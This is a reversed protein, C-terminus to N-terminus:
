SQLAWREAWSEPFDHGLAYVYRIFQGQHQAEHELLTALLDDREPTWEIGDVVRDFSEASADLAELLREPSQVDDATLSCGFGVWGNEELARTYSERAGVVCWLQAGVTNSRAPLRQTLADATLTEVLDRYRGFSARVRDIITERM